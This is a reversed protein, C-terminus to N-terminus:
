PLYESILDLIDGSMDVFSIRQHSQHKITGAVMVM